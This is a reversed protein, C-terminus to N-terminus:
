NCFRKEMIDFWRAYDNLRNILVVRTAIADAINEVLKAKEIQNVLIIFSETKTWTIFDHMEECEYLEQSHKVSLEDLTPYESRSSYETAYLEDLTPYESRSSYETAYLVIMHLVSSKYM